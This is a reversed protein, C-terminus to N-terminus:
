GHTKKSGRRLESFKILGHQHEVEQKQELNSEVTATTGGITVEVDTVRREM